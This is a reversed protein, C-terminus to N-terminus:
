ARHQPRRIEVEVSDGVGMRNEAGPNRVSTVVSAVGNIARFGSAGSGYVRHAISDETLPLVKGGPLGIM